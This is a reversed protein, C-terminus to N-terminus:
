DINSGTDKEKLKVKGKDNPDYNDLKGTWNNIHQKMKLKILEGDEKTLEGTEVMGDITKLRPAIVLDKLQQESIGKTKALDFVTKGSEKAKMIEDTKIGYKNILILIASRTYHYDKNSKNFKKNPNNIEYKHNTSPNNIFEVAMITSNLMFTLPVSLLIAKKIVCKKM